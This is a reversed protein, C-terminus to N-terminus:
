RNSFRSPTLVTNVAELLDQTM